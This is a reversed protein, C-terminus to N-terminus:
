EESLGYDRIKKLLTPYSINLEASAARRNWSHRYLAAAIMKREIDKVKEPLTVKGGDVNGDEIVDGDFNIERHTITGGNSTLIVARKIVKELERVNGVWDNSMLLEMAGDSFGTICKDNERCFHELYHRALLEIDSKRERLPPINLPFDNIRYYFDELMKGKECLSHLNIKSAFILRVDVGFMKNSGVPRVNSTDLFQLLKGQLQLSTKGIEDLFVTGGDAEALLGKKDSVAGTFAGKVHGFLESELLREPLAACNVHVFKGRRSRGSLKHIAQAVLGKGTGTEGTLLVNSDVDAVRKALNLVRMMKADRTIIRQFHKRGGGKVKRDGATDLVGKLLIDLFGTYTAVLDFRFGLRPPLGGGDESQFFLVGFRKKRSSLPHFCIPSNGGPLIDRLNAVRRDHKIDTVLFTDTREADANDLYWRALRCSLDEGMGKRALIAVDGRGNSGNCLAVFGHGATLRKMLDSLTFDLFKRVQPDLGSIGKVNGKENEGAWNGKGNGVENELERRLKSSKVQLDEDDLSEALSQAEFIHILCEDRSGLEREIEALKYHSEALDELYENREFFSLARMVHKKAGAISDKEDRSALIRGLILKSRNAELPNNVELFYKVSEDMLKVSRKREGLEELALGMTRKAFGIEHLEGCKNAVEISNQAISFAQRYKKKLLYTKAMRQLAETAVDSNPSIKKALSLSSSYNELAEDLSGEELKIDGLFEDALAIERGYGRRESLVRAEMLHKEASAMNGLRTEVVGLMLTARAYKQQDGFRRSVRRASTFCDQAAPYNYMKLYVIGLNLRVRLSHRTLSMKSSLDSARNLFHLARGWRCANKHLLGLNNLVFSEGVMDDIRRFSSLADMFYQEAENNKGMRFYCNAILLQVNAVEKHEDTFRLVKYADFGFRLGKELEGRELLVYGRRCALISKGIMDDEDCHSEASDLFAMAEKLLGKKKYCDAIKLHIVVLNLSSHPLVHLKQLAKEYYELAVSYNETSFHMDGLEEEDGIAKYGHKSNNREKNFYDNGQPEDPM